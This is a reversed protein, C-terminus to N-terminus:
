SATVDEEAVAVDALQDEMWAGEWMGNFYPNKRLVAVIRRYRLLEEVFPLPLMVWRREMRRKGRKTAVWQEANDALMVCFAPVRDWEVSIRFIQTLARLADAGLVTKRRKSEGVLATGHEDNGVLIDFGLDTIQGVRGTETVINELAPNKVRGAAGQLRVAFEREADKGKRLASM